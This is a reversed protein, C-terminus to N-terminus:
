QTAVARYVGATQQATKRWSFKVAQAAGRTVLAESVGAEVVTTIMAAGLARTDDPDKVLYAADGVVEPLSAFGTTVVPVGCAMAELPPLGFGEYRSPYVFCAAGRYLAPKDAEEVAGIFRVSSEVGLQKAYAPLDEYFTEGPALLQGAIVLPYYEGLPGDAWTWAALLNRVNKRPDFGGLYLVYTEPLNYKQRVAADRGNDPVPSFAEGVAELIATVKEPPLKFHRLVDARASESVTIIHSAGPTAASVLSTYFKARASGAYDPLLIPILDHITVVFPVPSALPPAWHPVHALTANLTKCARPFGIQEFWLKKLALPLRPVAVRHVHTAPHAASYAVDPLDPLVVVFRMDPAAAPLHALLERLYHGTGSHPKSIFWGNIAVLM